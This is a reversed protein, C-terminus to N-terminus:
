AAVPVRLNGSDVSLQGSGADQDRKRIVIDIDLGLRLLMRILREATIGDLRGNVVRSVHSQPIDLLAGAANQSLRRQRIASAVQLALAARLTLDAAEELGLDDFVNGSGATISDTM